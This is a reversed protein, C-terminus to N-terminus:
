LLFFVAKKSKLCMKQCHFTVSHVTPTKQSFFYIQNSKDDTVDCWTTSISRLLLLNHSPGASLRCRTSSYFYCGGWGSSEPKCMDAIVSENGRMSYSVIKCHGNLMLADSQPADDLWSLFNSYTVKGDWLGTCCQSSSVCKFVYRKGSGGWM